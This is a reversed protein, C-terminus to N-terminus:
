AVRTSINTFGVSGRAPLTLAVTSDAREPGGLYSRKMEVGPEDAKAKEANRCRLLSPPKLYRTRIDGVSVDCRPAKQACGRSSPATHMPPPPPFPLVIETNSGRTSCDPAAACNRTMLGSSSPM